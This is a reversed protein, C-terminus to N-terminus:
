GANRMLENAEPYPVSGDLMRYYTGSDRFEEAIRRLLGMTARMPGSGLSVRAVGLEQLMDVTPSGAAALINLPFQV